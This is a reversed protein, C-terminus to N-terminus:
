GGDGGAETAAEATLALYVDELSPRAVTLGALDIGRELAWGTLGHLASTPEATEVVVDGDPRVVVPVPLEAADIGAPLRFTISVAAEERGGISEPPGDAAIRGAAIVVIRDALRQAEDMYHTTLLITKGLAKLDEITEWATRRASPDFGTTPEDLFLLEPDGVLGLALDLRRKQGGSLSQARANAKEDLGVLHVVEQVNRPRRYLEAYRTVVERVSLYADVGAEQLVIGIRQRLASGGTSPDMGLVRARGGDPRQYGELIEMATTKGAGNPGLVAVTEGNAVTFSIGALARVTGFSKQLDEVEIAAL